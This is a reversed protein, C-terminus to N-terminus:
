YYKFTGKNGKKTLCKGLYYMEFTKYEDDKSSIKNSFEKLTENSNNTNTYTKYTITKKVDNKINTRTSDCKEIPIYDWTMRRESIELVFEEVVLKEAGCDSCYTYYEWGNEKGPIKIAVNTVYAVTNDHLKHEETSSVHNCKYCYLEHKSPGSECVPYKYSHDCQGSVVGTPGCSTLFMIVYIGNYFDSKKEYNLNEM